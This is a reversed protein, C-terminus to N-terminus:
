SRTLAALANEVTEVLDQWAEEGRRGGSVRVGAYALEPRLEELVDRAQSARLYESLGALDPRDLWRVLKRLAGLLQPWDRHRPLEHVELGLLSAWRERHLAYRQDAGVTILSAADASHLSVLAEHVNRKAYGASRTIAAVSARPADVTLLYRVAEARASVGLLHRLRFALNIPADLDPTRAKGTPQARPRVLGRELFEADVDQVPESLRRFLPRPEADAGPSALNAPPRRRRRGAVWDLVAGLLREDEAGDSFSRMRRISMVPENRVLWDLVEDFLRPDDRAVELTFLLLAEPDQAWPSRHHPAALLGMQAWEDWAFDLLAATLRERLASIPM